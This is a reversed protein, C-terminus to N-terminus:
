ALEPYYITIQRAGQKVIGARILLRVLAIVLGVAIYRLPIFVFRLTFFLALASLYPFFRVYRGSYRELFSVTSRHLVDDLRDDPEIIVNFKQEFQAISALIIGDRERPSLGSLPTGSSEAQQIIYERVTIEPALPEGGTIQSVHTLAYSMGAKPILSEINPAELQATTLVLASIVLAIGTLMSVFCTKIPVYWSKTTNKQLAAKAHSKDSILALTLILSMALVILSQSILLPIIALLGLAAYWLTRHEGLLMLLGIVPLFALLFVFGIALNYDSHAILPVFFWLLGGFLVTLGFLVLESKSLARQAKKTQSM